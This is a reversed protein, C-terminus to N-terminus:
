NTLGKHINSFLIKKLTEYRKTLKYMSTSYTDYHEFERTYNILM